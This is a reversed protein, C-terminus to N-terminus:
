GGLLVDVELDTLAYVRGAMSSVGVRAVWRKWRAERHTRPGSEDDWSGLENWVFEPRARHSPVEGLGLYRRGQYHVAVALTTYGHRDRDTPHPAIAYRSRVERRDTATAGGHRFVCSGEEQITGL